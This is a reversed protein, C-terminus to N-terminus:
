ASRSEVQRLRDDAWTAKMAFIKFGRDTGAIFPDDTTLVIRALKEIRADDWTKVVTMADQFELANAVLRLRAGHRYQSYWQPYLEERLRGAREALDDAAPKRESERETSGTTSSGERDMGPVFANTRQENATPLPTQLANSVANGRGRFKQIRARAAARDSSEEERSLNWALYNHVKYGTGPITEWLPAVGERAPTALQRERGKTHSRLGRMVTFPIIGDTQFKRCYAMAEHWLRFAGDNLAQFKEDDVYDDSLRIWAM